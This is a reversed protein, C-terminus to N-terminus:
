QQVAECYLDGRSNFPTIHHYCNLLTDFPGALSSFDRTPDPLGDGTASVMVKGALTTPQQLTWLKRLVCFIDEAVPRIADLDKLLENQSSLREGPMRTMVTYSNEEEEEEVDVLVPVPLQLGCENLFGLASAEANYAGKSCKM